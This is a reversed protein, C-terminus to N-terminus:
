KNMSHGYIILGEQAAKKLGITEDFKKAFTDFHPLFKFLQTRFIKTKRYDNFWVVEATRNSPFSKIKAPWHPYGKIKAWVVEEIKFDIVQLQNQITVDTTKESIATESSAVLMAEKSDASKSKTSESSASESTINEISTKHKTEISNAGIEIPPNSLKRRKAANAISPVKRKECLAVCNANSGAAHMKLRTM